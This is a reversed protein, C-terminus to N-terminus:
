IFDEVDVEEGCKPCEEPDTYAGCGQEADEMRGHMYKNRTAPYFKIEFDHQCEENKCCYDEKYSM